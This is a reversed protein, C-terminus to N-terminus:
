QAIFFQSRLTWFRLMWWVVMWSWGHRLLVSAAPQCIIQMKLNYITHTFGGM